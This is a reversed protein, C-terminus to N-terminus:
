LAERADLRRKPNRALLVQKWRALFRDLAEQGLDPYVHAPHFERPFLVPHLEDPYGMDAWAVDLLEFRTKADQVSDSLHRAVYYCWIKSSSEDEHDALGRVLDDVRDLEDQLLLAMADEQELLPVDKSALAETVEVLDARALYGGHYGWALEGPYPFGYELLESPALRVNLERM